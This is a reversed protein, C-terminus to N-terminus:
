FSKIESWTSWGLSRDRYRVRLYRVKKDVKTKIHTLDIGKNLDEGFYENTYNFYKQDHIIQFDLSRSFQIQTTLHGDEDLDSFESLFLEVEKEARKIKKIVPASPLLNYRKLIFEDTIGMDYLGASTGHSYRKFTLKPNAGSDVQGMVWGYQSYSKLYEPYDTQGGFDGWTDLHGGISAVTIMTHNARFSHGRSYAHTHGCLHVSPKGSENSFDELIQQIKGSYKTNGINWLESEHPHHFHAIVFDLDEREQVEQLVKKLWNLQKKSRFFFNTDLGIFRVNGHDFYYWHEEKGPSGNRPLDFYEFYLAHNEEHNGKAPIVAIKELLPALPDFFQTKWLSYISGHQVLDGSFLAFQVPYLYDDYNQEFAHLMLNERVVRATLENGNQADSLALFSFNEKKQPFTKFEYLDSIETGRKVRYFYRTDSELNELVSSFLKRKKPALINPIRNHTVLASYNLILANTGYLVEYNGNNEAEWKVTMSNESPAQLYPGVHFLEGAFLSTSFLLLFLFKM